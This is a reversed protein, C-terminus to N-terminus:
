VLVYVRERCSARGIEDPEEVLAEYHWPAPAGAGRQEDFFRGLQSCYREFGIDSWGTRLLAVYSAAPHRVTTLLRLDIDNRGRLLGLLTDTGPAGLAIFSSHSHLRLLLAEDREASHEAIRLVQDLVTSAVEDRLEGYLAVFQELPALPAFRVSPRADASIESLHRVRPMAALLRTFLTGGTCAQHSLAIVTPKRTM